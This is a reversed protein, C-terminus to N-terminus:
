VAAATFDATQVVEAERPLSGSLWDAVERGGRLLEALQVRAPILEELMAEGYALVDMSAPRYTPGFEVAMGVAAAACRILRSRYTPEDPETPWCLTLDAIAAWSSPRSVPLNGLPSLTLTDM